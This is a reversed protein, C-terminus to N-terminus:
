EYDDYQIVVISHVEFYVLCMVSKIAKKKEVTATRQGTKKALLRLTLGTSHFNFLATQVYYTKVPM